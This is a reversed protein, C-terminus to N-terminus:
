RLLVLRRECTAWPTRLRALYVGSACPRDQGDSGDWALSQDGVPREGAFLTRVLRGAVDYLSLEIRAATPLFFPLTTQPNFPNPHNQGLRAVVPTADAPLATPTYPEHFYETLVTDVNQRLAAHNMNYPRGALHALQAGDPRYAGGGPAQAHVGLGREGGGFGSTAKFLLTGPPDVDPWFVSTGTQNGIFPIDVFGPAVALCNGPFVSTEAWTVGLFDTLEGALYSASGRTMLLVNGGAELYPLVPTETWRALDGFMYNGAWILASFQALVDAPVAGHGIPPPLEDQYGGEPEPFVDWFTFPQYGTFISDEYAIGLMYAHDEFRTGNVLLIGRHFSPNEIVPDFLNLIWNDPDLEVELIDGTIPLSYQQVALSNEVVFDFTGSTTTVRVDIPMVFLGTNAQVQEIALEM